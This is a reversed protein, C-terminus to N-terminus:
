DNNKLQEKEEETLVKKIYSVPTPIDEDIEIGTERNFTYWGAIIQTDTVEEVVLYMPVSFALMREIVDGSKIQSLQEKTMPQYQIKM